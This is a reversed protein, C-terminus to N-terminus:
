VSLVIGYVRFARLGLRSQADAEFGAALGLGVGEVRFRVGQLRCGISGLSIVVRVREVESFGSGQVRFRSDSGWVSLGLGCAVFRSDQVM